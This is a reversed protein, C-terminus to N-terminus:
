ASVQEALWATAADGFRCIFDLDANPFREPDGLVREWHEDDARVRDADLDDTSYHAKLFQEATHAM